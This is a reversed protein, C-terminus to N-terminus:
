LTLFYWVPPPLAPNSFVTGELTSNLAAHFHRAKSRQLHDLGKPNSSSEASITFVRYFNRLCLSSSPVPTQEASITFVSCVQLPSPLVPSPAVSIVFVSRLRLPSSPVSSPASATVEAAGHEVRYFDGVRAARRAEHGIFPFCFFFITELLM